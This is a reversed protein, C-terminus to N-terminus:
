AAEDRGRIPMKMKAHWKEHCDVCLWSLPGKEADDGFVGRPWNHHLECFECEDCWDCIRQEAHHVVDMVDLDASEHPQWLRDRYVVWRRCDWCYYGWHWGGNSMQLKGARAVQGCDCIVGSM